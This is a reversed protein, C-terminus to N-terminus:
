RFDNVVARPLQFYNWENKSNMLGNRPVRNIRISEAIQRSMADNGYIGTVNMKFTQTEREHKEKCHKWLASKEEKKELAEKHEVGRTYASRVTERVSTLVYTVGSRM